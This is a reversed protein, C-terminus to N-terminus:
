ELMETILGVAKQAPTAAAPFLGPENGPPAASGALGLWGVQIKEIEPLILESEGSTVLVYVGTKLGLSAFKEPTLDKWRNFSAVTFSGVNQFAQAESAKAKLTVLTVKLGIRGGLAASELALDDDGFVFFRGLGANLPILSWDDAEKPLRPTTWPGEASLVHRTVKLSRGSSEAITLLWAAWAREQGELALRWFGLTNEGAQKELLFRKKEGSVAVLPKGASMEGILKRAGRFMGSGRYDGALVKGEPDLVAARCEGNLTQALVPERGRKLEDVLFPLWSKM